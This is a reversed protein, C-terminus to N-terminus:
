FYSELKGIKSLFLIAAALYHFQWWNRSLIENRHRITRFGDMWANFQEVVFRKRYIQEDLFYRTEKGNRVNEAINPFVGSSDLTQRLQESDFGADANLVTGEPSLGASRMDDLMKSVTKKIDFLDNRSGEVPASCALMVGQDDTLFLMNTTKAKKRGQYSVKQGGRCARTHSGDLHLFATKLESRFRLLLGQMLDKFGSTSCWKNYHYYVSQWSYRFRGFLEKMPLAYWQIGTKLKYIIARIVRWYKVKCRRGRKREPFYPGFLRNITGKNM